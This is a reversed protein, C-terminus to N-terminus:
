PVESACVILPLLGKCQDNRGFVKIKVDVVKYKEDKAIRDVYYSCRNECKQVCGCDTRVVEGLSVLNTSGLGIHDVKSSGSM